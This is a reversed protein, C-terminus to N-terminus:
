TEELIDTLDAVVDKWSARMAALARRGDPTLSYYKRPPGLPSEQWRTSLMGAAKLRNLLPYVTGSALALAPHASLRSVLDSGYTSERELLTLVALDALGKRIQTGWVDQATDREETGAV